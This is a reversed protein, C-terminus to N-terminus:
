APPCTRTQQAGTAVGDPPPPFPAFKSGWGPTQPEPVSSLIKPPVAVSISSNGHITRSSNEFRKNLLNKYFIISNIIKIKCCIVLSPEM